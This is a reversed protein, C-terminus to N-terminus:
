PESAGRPGSRSDLVAPLAAVDPIVAVPDFEAFAERGHAGTLTAVFPIGAAAAARADVPHDGIYVAPAGDPGLLRLALLLAAPDPKHSPTDEGGVIVDFGQRLGERELITEIRYRFKTSVIGLSFGRGRLERLTGPVAAYIHTLEAMVQDAREVFHRLYEKAFSEATVGTLLEVAPRLPLGVTARIREPDAAPLGLRGLAYNVCEVAGAYSDALTFDFDFLVSAM